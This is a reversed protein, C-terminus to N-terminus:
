RIRLNSSTNSAIIQVDSVQATSIFIQNSQCRIEFGDGFNANAYTPVLVVSSIINALQQHLYAALETFYFTEGFDWFQVSFYNNIMRVVQSQIEGDSLTSNPLKVVKFTAKLTDDAGVGFLFKYTVPRWVIQDSFMAFEEFSQFALRLDLETPATPIANPDCGNAIWLRIQYDYDSTLVFLDNINTRAPDIRHDTSAYHKWQFSINDPIVPILPASFPPYWKAAVNYGRGIGYSYAGPRQLAWGSDAGEPDTQVWFTNNYVSSNAAIQFAVTNLPSTNNHRDTEQEFVVMTTSPVDGYTDDHQWFLYNEATAVGNSSVLRYFTDPDDPYGNLNADQLQVTVRLPNTSGDRNFYLHDLALDYNRGLSRGLSNNLDENIKLVRIIDQQETGTQADMTRRGDNYWQVNHVSEFVYRLGTASISWLGGSSYTVTMLLFMDSDPAAPSIVWPSVTANFDYWVTFSQNANIAAEMATTALADLGTTFFPIISLVSSGDPVSVSLVVPGASGLPPVTTVADAVTSVTAWLTTNNALLFKIQAGPEIYDNAASFYGSSSFSADTQALHWVVTNAAIQQLENAYLYDQGYNIVEQRNLIPQCYLNVIDSASPNLSIPVQTDIPYNERFVLGDDSYVVVDQYNGTPDNLDIFRSHGSYVRNLAKLKIALNSQLPFTNYDEGSVMRNQTAYVSPARAKIQDDTERPTSNAVSQQLSFTLTLNHQVGARNFYPLTIKIRDMDAPRIQYQLGNSTRYFVRINGTPVAGFRGDSFRISVADQDGTIVSFINRVSVDFNNYTINESFIAPVKSWSQLVTGSDSVTQVWVDSNNVGTTAVPLLNNEVPVSVNFLSQQLTGQKFMFFFGTQPSSNGNGDNLYFLNFANNYDPEREFFGGGDTFDPNVLEFNMSNGGVTTTFGLNAQSMSNNFRYLQTALNGVTGTKLPVGYQNTGIFTSNMVSIFREFWNPDDPNDWQITMGNLNTGFGDTVDDDTMVEILKVIGQACQNRSPNYSLFRALRLISIRTEATDLFSERANLDTKFALTGALWSLLDIIAM